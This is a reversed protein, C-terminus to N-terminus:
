SARHEINSPSEEGVQTAAISCMHAAFTYFFTLSAFHPTHILNKSLPVILYHSMAVQRVIKHYGVESQRETERDKTGKRGKTGKENETVLPCLLAYFPMFPLANYKDRQRVVFATLPTEVSPM